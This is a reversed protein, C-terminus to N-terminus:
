RCKLVREVKWTIRLGFANGNPCRRSTFTYQQCYTLIWNSVLEKPRSVLSFLSLVYSVLTQFCLKVCVNWDLNSVAYTILLLRQRSSRKSAHHACWIDKRKKVRVFSYSSVRGRKDGVWSTRRNFCVFLCVFVTKSGGLGLMVKNYRCIWKMDYVALHSRWPGATLIFNWLVSRKKKKKKKLSRFFCAMLINSVVLVIVRIQTIWDQRQTPTRLIWDM